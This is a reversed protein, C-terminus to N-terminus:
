LLVKRAGLIDRTRVFHHNAPLFEYPNHRLFKYLDYLLFLDILKELVNYGDIYLSNLTQGGRKIYGSQLFYKRVKAGNKPSDVLLFALTRAIDFLRHGRAVKEFDIMGSLAWKGVVFRDAPTALRFLLNGRVFDMHLLQQHPLAQCLQLLRLFDAFLQPSITLTLKTALARQVDQGAFYTAMRRVIAVYEITVAPVDYVVQRMAEHLHGMTMGVLKLHVKTYHEWPITTGPLYDYLSGYSDGGISGLRMIRKDATTRVPLGQAALAAGVTNTRKIRAVIGPENKYVILNVMRGDHLEIPYSTNRYGRQEDFFRRATLGYLRIIRQLSAEDM